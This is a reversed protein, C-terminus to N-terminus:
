NYFVNTINYIIENINNIEKIPPRSWGLGLWHHNFLSNNTKYYMSYSINKWFECCKIGNKINNEFAEKCRSIFNKYIMINMYLYM